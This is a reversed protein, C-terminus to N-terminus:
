FCYDCISHEGGASQYSVFPRFCIMCTSDPEANSRTGKAAERAQEAEKRRKHEAAREADTFESM